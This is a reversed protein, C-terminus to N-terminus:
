FATHAANPITTGGLLNILVIKTFFKSAPLTSSHCFNQPSFACLADMFQIFLLYFLAAV